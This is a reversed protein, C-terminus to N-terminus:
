RKSVKRVKALRSKTEAVKTKRAAAAEEGEGEAPEVAADAMLELEDESWEMDDAAANAPPTQAGLPASPLSTHTQVKSVLAATRAEVSEEAVGHAVCVRLVEAKDVLKLLARLLAPDQPDFAAESPVSGAPATAGPGQEQARLAALQGVELRAAALDTTNKATREVLEEKEKDLEAQKARLEEARKADGAVRKELNEQHRQAQALRQATPKCGRVQDLINDVVQQKAAM